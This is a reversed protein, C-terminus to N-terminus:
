AFAMFMQILKIIFEFLKQWDINGWDISPDGAKAVVLETMIADAVAEGDAMNVSGEAKLERYERLCSRFNVGLQRRHMREAATSEPSDM